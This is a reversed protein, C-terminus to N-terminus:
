RWNPILQRQPANTVQQRFPMPLRKQRFPHSILWKATLGVVSLEPSPTEGVVTLKPRCVLTIDPIIQRRGSNLAAAS